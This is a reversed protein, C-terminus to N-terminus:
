VGQFLFPVDQTMKEIVMNNVKLYGESKILAECIEVGEKRSVFTDSGDKKLCYGFYTELASISLAGNTQVIDAVTPMKLYNEVLKIRELTFKLEYNEGNYEIM